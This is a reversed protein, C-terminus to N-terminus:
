ILVARKQGCKELIRAERENLKLVQTEITRLSDRVKQTSWTDTLKRVADLTRRFDEMSSPVDNGKSIKDQLSCLQNTFLKSSDSATINDNGNTNESDLKLPIGSFGKSRLDRIDNLIELVAARPASPDKETIYSHYSPTGARTGLDLPKWCYRVFPALHSHSEPLNIADSTERNQLLSRNDKQPIKDAVVTKKPPSRFTPKKKKEGDLLKITERSLDLWEQAGDDDYVLHFYSTNEQQKQITANYFLEDDRWCVSIRDGAKAKKWKDNPKAFKAPPLAKGNVNPIVVNSWMEKLKDHELKDKRIRDVFHALAQEGDELSESIEEDCLLDAITGGNKNNKEFHTESDVDSVSANRKPIKKIPTYRQVKGIDLYVDLRKPFNWMDWNWLLNHLKKHDRLKIKLRKEDDKDDDNSDSTSPPREKAPEPSLPSKKRKKKNLSQAVGESVAKRKSTAKTTKKAKNKSTSLTKGPAEKNKKSATTTISTKTATNKRGLKSKLKAENRIKEHMRGKREREKKLKEKHSAIRTFNEGGMNRHFHPNFLMGQNKGKAIKKWGHDRLQRMWHNFTKDPTKTKFYNCSYDLLSIALPLIFVLAILFCMRKHSVSLLINHTFSIDLM